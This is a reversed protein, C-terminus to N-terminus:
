VDACDQFSVLVKFSVAPQSSDFARLGVVGVNGPLIPALVFSKLSVVLVNKKAFTKGEKEYRWQDRGVQSDQPM